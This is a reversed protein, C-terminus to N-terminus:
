QTKYQQIYNVTLSWYLDPQLVNSSNYWMESTTLQSTDSTQIGTDEAFENFSNIVVSNPLPSRNLIVNWVNNTYYSAKDRAVPTYGSLHNNWGPMAVMVTDDSVTGTPPLQWGYEGATATPDSSAFRVTFASSASKDGTYNLWSSQQAKNAYVVLLPKNDVQYYNDGGITPDNAFEEWTQRAENELTVPDNSYQLGGIAFAYRVKPNAANDNWVNVRQALREARNLIAGEAVNLNNTEDLLLYDIKAASITSLHEDIVATNGSDYQQYSGLTLPQYKIPPKSGFGAWTNYTINDASAYRQVKWTGGDVTPYFAVVDKWGYEEGSARALFVQSANYGFGSNLLLNDGKVTRSARDYERGILDGPNGDAIDANFFAYPEAYGDGNGDTYFLQSAGVGHGATIATTAAFSSGSSLGQAWTGAGTAIADAKGDNNADGLFYTSAGAGVNNAWINLTGATTGNSLSVVWQGATSYVSVLDAKGDGSVDGALVQTAGSGLGSTMLTFSSFASGTSLAVYWDGVYGDGSPDGNFFVLADSRGDGNVDALLQATSGTGHGTTWTSAAGFSTGNSLAVDWTGGTFTVADALGDGNVDAVFQANSGAGFGTKWSDPLPDRKAYWTAYWIGVDRPQAAEAPAASGGAVLAGVLIVAASASKLSNM